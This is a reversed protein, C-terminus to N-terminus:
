NGKKYKIYDIIFYFFFIPYEGFYRKFLVPEDYMRYVWRLNYKDIWKPYYQIDGVTQHLFGGCTYGIGDWGDNQLDVLFQEQLPTGMGCVVIDPSLNKINEFVNNREENKIYGDRFGVINLKPYSAKINDIAKDIVKPKTGIFYISQNEKIADEFVIPALSTMDFSERKIDKFGFLKLVKVLLIGDIKIDFKEFLKKNNRALLYSYPNLFTILKSSKNTIKNLM